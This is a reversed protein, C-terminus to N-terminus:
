IINWTLQHVFWPNSLSKLTSTSHLLLLSNDSIEKTEMTMDRVEVSLEKKEMTMERLEMTLERVERDIRKTEMTMERVKVRM